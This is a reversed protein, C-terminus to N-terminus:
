HALCRATAAKSDQEQSNYSSYAKTYSGGTKLWPRINRNNVSM